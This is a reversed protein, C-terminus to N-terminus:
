RGSKHKALARKGAIMEKQTEKSLKQNIPRPGPAPIKGKKVLGIIPSMAQMDKRINDESIADDSDTLGLKRIVAERLVRVTTEGTYHKQLRHPLERYATLLAEIRRTVSESIKREKRAGRRVSKIYNAGAEALDCVIGFGPSGPQLVGARLHELAKDIEADNHPFGSRPKPQPRHPVPQRSVLAEAVAAEHKVQSPFIVNKDHPLASGPPLTINGSNKPKKAM